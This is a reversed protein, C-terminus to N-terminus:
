GNDVQEVKLMNGSVIAVVRISTGTPLRQHNTSVANFIKLGGQVTVQVQGTGQEPITLYVTGEEGIANAIRLTGDSQMRRMTQFILGVLLLTVMGAVIAGALSIWASVNSSLMALGVLGFMMFFGAVGQLSIFQFGSDHFGPEVSDAGINVDPLEQDGAGFLFLILRVLFLVGGIVATTGFFMALSPTNEM